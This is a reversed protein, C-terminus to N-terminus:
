RAGGGSDTGGAWAACLSNAVVAGRGARVSRTRGADSGARGRACGRQRRQGHGCNWVPQDGRWGCRHPCQFRKKFGRLRWLRRRLARAAEPQAMSVADVGIGLLRAAEGLHPTLLVCDPFRQAGNTQAPSEEGHIALPEPERVIPFGDMKALLNLADADLVAHLRHECLWPILSAMLGQAFTGQGIGCGAILADARNLASELAAWASLPDDECLPICTACPCITQVVPVIAAPCAVTVLGTGARLAATACVGAAGAMGVSGALVLVRGYSGKHTNRKRPPLLRDGRNLVAMGTADDWEAPIGIDGM